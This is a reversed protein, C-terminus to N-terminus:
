QCVLLIKSDQFYQQVTLTRVPNTTSFEVSKATGWDHNVDKTGKMKITGDRNYRDRGQSDRDPVWPHSFGRVTMVKIVNTNGDTSYVVKVRLKSIFDELEHNSPVPDPGTSLLRIMQLLNLEPYFPSCQANLNLLIRNTSTRISSYYGRVGILCGGLDLNRYADVYLQHPENRPFRYFKNQGSQFVATDKNPTGDMIINLAQIADQRATFDSIDAPQSEVHRVIESIPVTGQFRVTVRYVQENNGRPGNNGQASEYEGRYVQRYEKQLLNEHFLRKCTILTNAYDTAVAAARTQFDPVEEFLVNFFQRRKKRNDLAPTSTSLPGINVDYRFLELNADITVKFYNTRLSFQEGEGYGTRLPLDLSKALDEKPTMNTLQVNEDEKRTIQPDPTTAGTNQSICLLDSRGPFFLRCRSGSRYRFILDGSTYEDNGLRNRPSGTTERPGRGRSPGRGRNGGRNVFGGGTDSGGSASVPHHARAESENGTSPNTLGLGRGRGGRDGRPRGERASM